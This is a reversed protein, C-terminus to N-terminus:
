INTVEEENNKFNPHPRNGLLKYIRKLEEKLNNSVTDKVNVQM